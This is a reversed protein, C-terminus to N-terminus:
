DGRKGLKKAVNEQLSNFNCTMTKWWDPMKKKLELRAETIKGSFSAESWRRGALECKDRIKDKCDQLNLNLNLMKKGSRRDDDVIEALDIVKREKECAKQESSDKGINCAGKENKCVDIPNADTVSQDQHSSPKSVSPLLKAAEGITEDVRQTTVEAKDLSDSKQVKGDNAANSNPMLIQFQRQVRPLKMRFTDRILLGAAM